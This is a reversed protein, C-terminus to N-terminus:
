GRIESLLAEVMVPWACEIVCPGGECLERQRLGAEVMGETVERVGELVAVAVRRCAEESLLPKDLAARIAATMAAILYLDRNM